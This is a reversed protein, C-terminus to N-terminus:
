NFRDPKKILILPIFGFLYYKEKTQRIKITLIKIINFLLIDKKVLNAEHDIRSRFYMFFPSMYCYKWWLDGLLNERNKWPQRLIYHVIAPNDVAEIYDQKTYTGVKIPDEFRGGPGPMYNYRMPLYLIKGDCTKNLIDQDPYVFIDQRSLELWQEYLGIKRLEKINMLLVGSNIYMGNKPYQRGQEADAVGALLNHKMDVNYLGLLNDHFTVDSDCYIIKDINKPLLKLLMFRFFIGVTYQKTASGDFDHTANLFILNSNTDAKKVIMSLEDRKSQSLNEPVVCYIDYSCKNMTHYLLSTIAVGALMWMNSDFCFAINIKPLSM